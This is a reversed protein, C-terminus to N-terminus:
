AGPVERTLFKIFDDRDEDSDWPVQALSIIIAPEDYGLAEVFASVNKVFQNL